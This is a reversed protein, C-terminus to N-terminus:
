LKEIVDVEWKKYVLVEVKYLFYYLVRVIIVDM